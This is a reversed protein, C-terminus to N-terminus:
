VTADLGGGGKLWAIFLVVGITLFLAALGGLTAHNIAALLKM